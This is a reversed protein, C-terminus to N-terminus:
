QQSVGAELIENNRAVLPAQLGLRWTTIVCAEVLFSHFACLPIEDRTNQGEIVQLRIVSRKAM